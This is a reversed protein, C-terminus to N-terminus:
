DYWYSIEESATDRPSADGDAWEWCPQAIEWSTRIHDASYMGPLYSMWFVFRVKWWLKKM